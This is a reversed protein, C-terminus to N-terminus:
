SADLYLDDNYSPYDQTPEPTTYKDCNGASTMNLDEMVPSGFIFESLDDDKDTDDLHHSQQQWPVFWLWWQHLTALDREENHEFDYSLPSQTSVPEM